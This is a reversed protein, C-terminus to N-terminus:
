PNRETVLLLTAPVDVGGGFDWEFGNRLDLTLTSDLLTYTGTLLDGDLRLRVEDGVLEISGTSVEIMGVVDVTATASGDAGITLQLSAGAAVLDVSQSPQAVNTAVASTATWTGTLDPVEPGIADGCAGVALCV